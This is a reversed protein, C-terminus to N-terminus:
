GISGAVAAITAVASEFVARLDGGILILVNVLVTAALAVLLVSEPHNETFGDDPRNEPDRRSRDVITRM